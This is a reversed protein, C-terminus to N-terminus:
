TCLNQEDSQRSDDHTQETPPEQTKTMILITQSATIGLNKEEAELSPIETVQLERLEENKSFTFNRSVRVVRAEKDWCRVAKSGKMFGVFIM